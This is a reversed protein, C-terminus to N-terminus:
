VLISIDSVTYIRTVKKRAIIGILPLLRYGTGTYQISQPVNRNNTQERIQEEKAITARDTM